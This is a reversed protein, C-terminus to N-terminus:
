LNGGELPTDTISDFFDKTVKDYFRYVGETSVLPVLKQVQEDGQWVMFLLIKGKFSPSPITGDSSRCSGILVSGITEFANVGTIATKSGTITIEASSLVASYIMDENAVPSKTNAKNGFRWNGGMYATIAKTNDSSAVGLMYHQSAMERVFVVEIKTNQNGIIRTDVIQADNFQIYDVRSYGAPLDSDGGAAPVNVTVPGFGDVGEPAEYTGNETIDLPEIVPVREPVNVEAYAYATVDHTGNEAIKKTGTPTIGGSDGAAKGQLATHIMAILGSQEHMEDAAAEGAAAMEAPTMTATSGNLERLPDAIAKITTDEFTYKAM